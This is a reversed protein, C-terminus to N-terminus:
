LTDTLRRNDQFWKYVCELIVTKVLMDYKLLMDEIWCVDKNEICEVDKKETKRSKNQARWM